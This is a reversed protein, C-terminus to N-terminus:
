ESQNLTIPTVKTKLIKIKHRNRTSSVTCPAISTVIIGSTQTHGVKQSTEDLYFIAYLKPIFLCLLTVYANLILGVALLAVQHHAYFTTFYTPIFVLWIFITTSVSVFIYWSENFNEPLKRTLYGYTGCCLLLILNYSLPVLLAEIQLDCFLEAYKETMIPM